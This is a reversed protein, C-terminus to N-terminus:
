IISPPFFIFKNKNQHAINIVIRHISLLILLTFIKPAGVGKDHKNSLTADMCDFLDDDEM